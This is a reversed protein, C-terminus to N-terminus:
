QLKRVAPHLMGLAMVVACIGGCLLFVTPAGAQATLWGSLGFGIPMLLFSGFQDVSSVRGLLENPVLEQMVNTWILNGASIGIGFGLAGLFATPLSPILGMLIFSLGSLMWAAYTWIGRRRLRSRHGIWVAGIIAGISIASMVIGLAGVDAKLTDKVLFPLAVPMGGALFLNIVGALTITLWLWASGFIASLGERLDKIVNPRSDAKQARAVVLALIPLVCGAAVFFSVGDLMFTIATGGLAVFAAGLSPGIIGSFQGSLATLSNASPLIEAPTIDPVLAIYAPEFFADVFGFILSAVYVHWLALLQTQMLVAMVIVLVGRSVDSAFMVRQRPLRDAMVGGILLFVLRPLLTLTPVAAMAAASGTKELIWWSLAILYVSDGLRSITQGIWLLAFPRCKLANFMRM